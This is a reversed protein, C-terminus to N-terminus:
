APQLSPISPFHRVNLTLLSAGLLEAGAAILYDPLEVGPHSRRYRRALEGAADAVEIDVELWALSDLLSHTAARERSRMGALLESRTVVVGWLEDGVTAREILLQTAREDGRLFDVLVSTDCVFRM